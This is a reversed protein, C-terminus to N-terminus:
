FHVPMEFLLLIHYFLFLCITTPCFLVFLCFFLALYFTSFVCVGCLSVCMEVCLFDMLVFDCPMICLCFIQVIIFHGYMVNCKNQTLKRSSIMLGPRLCPKYVWHSKNPSFYNIKQLCSNVPSLLQWSPNFILTEPYKGEWSFGRDLLSRYLDWAHKRLIMLEYTGEDWKNQCKNRPTKCGM